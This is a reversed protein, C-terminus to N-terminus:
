RTGYMTNNNLLLCFYQWNFLLLIDNVSLKKLNNHKKNKGVRSKQTTHKDSQEAHVEENHIYGISKWEVRPHLM